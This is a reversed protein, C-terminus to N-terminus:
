GRMVKGGGRLAVGMGRLKGGRKKTTVNNQGLNGLRDRPERKRINKQDVKLKKTKLINKKTGLRGGTNKNLLKAKDRAEGKTILGEEFYKKIKNAEKNMEDMQAKLRQNNATTQLNQEKAKKEYQKKDGIKLGKIKDKLKTILKKKNFPISKGVAKYTDVITDIKTQLTDIKKAIKTPFDSFKGFRARKDAAQGYGSQKKDSQFFKGM